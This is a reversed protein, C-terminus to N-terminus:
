YTVTVVVTDTYTGALPATQPPIRGYVTVAQDSGTGTGLVCTNSGGTCSTTSSSTKWATSRSSDTYLGYSVYNSTAGLRMRRQSGLANNGNGLGISYPTANTCRATITATSDVNSLIFSGTSGFALPTASVNCTANITASQTGSNTGTYSSNYASPAISTCVDGSGSRVHSLTRIYTNSATYTGPPATAQGAVISGYATLSTSANGSSNTTLIVQIAVSADGVDWPAGWISTHGSDKFTLESLNYSGGANLYRHNDLDGGVSNWGEGFCVLVTQNSGWGSCSVFVPVTTYAAAGGIVDIAGFNMAGVSASCGGAVAARTPLFIVAAIVVVIRAIMAAPRFQCALGCALDHNAVNSVAIRRAGPRWWDDMAGTGERPLMLRLPVSGRRRAFRTRNGVRQDIVNVTPRPGM